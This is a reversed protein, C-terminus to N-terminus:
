KTIITYHRIQERFNTSSFKNGRFIFCNRYTNEMARNICIYFEIIKYKPTNSQKKLPPWIIKVVIITRVMKRIQKNKKTSRSKRLKLYIICIEEEERLSIIM